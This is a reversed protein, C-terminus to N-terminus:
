GKANPTSCGKVAHITKIEKIDLAHENRSKYLEQMSEKLKCTVEEITELAKTMVPMARAQTEIQRGLGAMSKELASVSQVLTPILKGQADSQDTYRKFFHVIGGGIVMGGISYLMKVLEDPM